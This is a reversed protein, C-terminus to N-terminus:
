PIAVIVRHRGHAVAHRLAFALSALTKGGGTPVQLSFVGPPQDATARCDALVRARARMVADDTRGDVRVAATMADLRDDLRALYESLPPHGARTAAGGCDLYAETDLFDADVLASFMLRLWLSQALPEGERLGPISTLLTTAQLEAPLALLEPAHDTCAAVAERHERESDTGGGGM